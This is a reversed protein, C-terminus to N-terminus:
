FENQEYTNRLEDNQKLCEYLVCLSAKILAEDRGTPSHPTHKGGHFLNNRVRTIAEIAQEIQNNGHLQKPVWERKDLQILPINSTLYDIAAVLEANEVELYSSAFIGFKWWAPEIPRVNERIYNNEKLVFEFRSFVAFFECVLQESLQLGKFPSAIEM